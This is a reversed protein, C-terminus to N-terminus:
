PFRFQSANVPQAFLPAHRGAFGVGRQGVEDRRPRRAAVPDPHEGDGGPAIQIPGDRCQSRALLAAVVVLGNLELRQGVPSRFREGFVQMRLHPFFEPSVSGVLREAFILQDRLAVLTDPRGRAVGSTGVVALLREDPAEQLNLPADSRAQGLRVRHPRGGRHRAIVEGM